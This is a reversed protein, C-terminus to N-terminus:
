KELVTRALCWIEVRQAGASILAQALARATGTTTVVDDIVAIHEGSLDRSIDFVGRLQRRRADRDRGQQTTAHTRRALGPTLPIGLERSVPRALEVAQNFGRSLRRRWHLPVPVLRQPYDDSGLTSQVHQALLRGLVQGAALDRRQKLALILGSVPQSYPHCVLIRTFPPPQVLCEGCITTAPLPIACQPCCAGIAPLTAECGTCLDLPRNSPLGCCLCLGPFPRYSLHRLLRSFIM